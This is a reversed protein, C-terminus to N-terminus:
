YELPLEQGNTKASKRMPAFLKEKAFCVM